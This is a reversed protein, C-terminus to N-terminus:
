FLSHSTLWPVMVRAIIEDPRLIWAKTCLTPLCNMLKRTSSSKAPRGRKILVVLTTFGNQRKKQGGLLSNAKYLLPWPDNESDKCVSHFYRNLWLAQLTILPTWAVVTPTFLRPWQLWIVKEMVKILQLVFDPWEDMVLTVSVLCFPSCYCPESFLWPLRQGVIPTKGM